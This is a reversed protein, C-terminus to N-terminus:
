GAAFGTEDEDDEADIEVPSPSTLFAVSSRHGM